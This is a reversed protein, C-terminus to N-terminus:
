WTTESDPPGIDVSQDPSVDTVGRIKRLKTAIKGAAYGTVVGVEKLVQGKVLGAKALDKAVDDIPREESATIIWKKQKAM